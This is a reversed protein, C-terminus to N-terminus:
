FQRRMDLGRRAEPARPIWGSSGTGPRPLPSARLLRMVLGVPTVVVYFVIGLFVPTTIGSVLRALGMWARFVPGLYAPLLAGGLILLGGVAAFGVCVHVRGRWWALGALVLFASGVQLGFRRGAAATLRAPIGEALGQDGEM